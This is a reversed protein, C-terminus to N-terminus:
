QDASSYPSPANEPFELVSTSLRLVAMSTQLLFLVCKITDRYMGATTSAYKELAM